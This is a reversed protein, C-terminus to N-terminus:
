NVRALRWKVVVVVFFCLRPIFPRANEWFGRLCLIFGGGGYIYRVAYLWNCSPSPPYQKLLITTRNNTKLSHAAFLGCQDYTVKKLGFVQRDYLVPRPSGFIDIKSDASCFLGEQQREYCFAM